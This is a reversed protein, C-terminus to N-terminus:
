LEDGVKLEESACVFGCKKCEALLLVDQGFEEGAVASSFNYWRIESSGCKPCKLRFLGKECQLTLYESHPARYSIGYNKVEKVKM